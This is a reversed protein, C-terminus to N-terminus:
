CQLFSTNIEDHSRTKFGSAMTRREQFRSFFREHASECQHRLDRVSDTHRDDGCPANGVTTSDHRGQGKAGVRHLDSRSEKPAVFRSGTLKM